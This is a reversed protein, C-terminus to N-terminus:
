FTSAALIALMVAGSAMVQKSSDEDIDMVIFRIREQTIDNPVIIKLKM